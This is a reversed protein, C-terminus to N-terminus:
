IYYPIFKCTTDINNRFIAIPSVVAILAKFATTKFIIIILLFYLVYHIFVNFPAPIFFSNIITISSSVVVYFSKNNKGTPINLITLFLTMGIYIEIFTFPSTIIQTNFENPTILVTWINNLIEM